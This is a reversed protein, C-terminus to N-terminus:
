RQRRREGGEGYRRVIAPPISVSRGDFWFM